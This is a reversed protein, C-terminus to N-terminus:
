GFIERAMGNRLAKHPVKLDANCVFGAARRLRHARDVTVIIFDGDIGRKELFRFVVIGRFLGRCKRFV